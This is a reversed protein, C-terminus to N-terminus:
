LADSKVGNRFYIVASVGGILLPILVWAAANNISVGSYGQLMSMPNISCGIWNKVYLSIMNMGYWIVFPVLTLLFANEVLSAAALATTAFTGAYVFMMLLYIGIYWYPHSMQLRYFISTACVPRAGMLSPKIAPLMCSTVLLNFLYPIVVTLGAMFFVTAYKATLYYIKKTRTYLNKIYGSKLDQQYSLGYPLVALVPLVLMYTERYADSIGGIWWGFVTCPTDTQGTYGKLPNLGRPYVDAILQATVIVMGVLLSIWFGRSHLAREMEIKLQKKM